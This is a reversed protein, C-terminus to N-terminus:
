GTRRKDKKVRKTRPKTDLDTGHLEGLVEHMRSVPVRFVGALRKVQGEYPQLRGSEIKGIDSEGIEARRALEAKSWGKARRLAELKTM